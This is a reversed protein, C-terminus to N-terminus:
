RVGRERGGRKVRQDSRKGEETRREKKEQRGTIKQAGMGSNTGRLLQFVAIREKLILFM